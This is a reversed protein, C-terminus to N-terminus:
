RCLAASLTAVSRRGGVNGFEDLVRGESRLTGAPGLDKPQGPRCAPRVPTDSMTVPETAASMAHGGLGFLSEVAHRASRGLTRIVAARERAALRRAETYTFYDRRDIRITM